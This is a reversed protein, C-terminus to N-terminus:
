PAPGPPCFGRNQRQYRLHLSGPTLLAASLLFGWPAAVWKGGAMCVGETGPALPRVWNLPGIGSPLVTGPAQRPAVLLVFPRSVGWSAGPVPGLLAGPVEAGGM